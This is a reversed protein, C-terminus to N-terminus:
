GDNRDGLGFANGTAKEGGALSGTNLSTVSSKYTKIRGSITGIKKGGNPANNSKPDEPTGDVYSKVIGDKSKPPMNAM